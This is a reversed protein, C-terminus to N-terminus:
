FKSLYEDIQDPRIGTEKAGDVLAQPLVAELDEWSNAHTMLTELAWRKGGITWGCRDVWPMVEVAATARNIASRLMAAREVRDETTLTIQAGAQVAALAACQGLGPAVCSVVKVLDDWTDNWGTCKPLQIDTSKEDESEDGPEHNFDDDEPEEEEDEDEEDCGLDDPNLLDIQMDKWEPLTGDANMLAQTIEVPTLGEALELDTEGTLVIQWQVKKLV